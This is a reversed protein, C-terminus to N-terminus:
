TKCFFVCQLIIYYIFLDELKLEGFIKMKLRTILNLFDIGNLLAYNKTNKM